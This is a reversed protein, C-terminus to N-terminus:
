YDWRVRYGRIDLHTFTNGYGLGGHWTPDLLQQVRRPTLGMVQIDAAGGNLHQSQSAGGVRRNSVPDRYWSTITIPRNGLQIRVRDLERALQVIKGAITSDRPIRTGNKTAEGWTFNSGRYIPDATDVPNIIGPIKIKAM